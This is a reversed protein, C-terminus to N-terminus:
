AKKWLDGFLHQGMAEIKEANTGAGSEIQKARDDSLVKLAAEATERQFKERALALEEDKQTIRVKNQDLKVDTQEAKRLEALALALKLLADPSLKGEQEEEITELAEMIKGAVISAGGGAISRGDAQALAAAYKSLEKTHEVRERKQLWAQFDTQRWTSLNQDTVPEGEFETALIKVVDPLANLWPLIVRGPQGDHLRICVQDRIAAPLRAIKGRRTTITPNNKM